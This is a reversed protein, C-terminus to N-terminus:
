ISAKMLKEEEVQEARDTVRQMLAAAVLLFLGGAVVAALRNIHLLHNM